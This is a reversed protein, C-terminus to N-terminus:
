SNKDNMCMFVDIDNDALTLASEAHKMAEEAKWDECNQELVINIDGSDVYQQIDTMMGAYIQPVDTIQRADGKLIVFNGSTIGLTDVIYQSHLQGLLTNDTNCHYAVPCDVPLRTQSVVPIGMEAIETLVPGLMSADHAGVWIADVGQAALSQLQQIQRDADNDAVLIVAEYGRKEADEEILTMQIQWVEEQVTPMSMGIKYKEGNEKLPWKGDEQLISDFEPLNAWAEKSPDTIPVPDNSSTAEADDTGSDATNNGVNEEMEGQPTTDEPSEQSCGTMLLMCMVLIMALIRTMKKM